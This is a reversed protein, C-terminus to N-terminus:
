HICNVHLRPLQFPRLRCFLTLVLSWWETWFVFLTCVWIHSCYHLFVLEFLDPEISGNFNCNNAVVIGFTIKFVTLNLEFLGKTECFDCLFGLWSMKSVSVQAVEELSVWSEVLVCEGCCILKILSGSCNVCVSLSSWSEWLLLYVLVLRRVLHFIYLV